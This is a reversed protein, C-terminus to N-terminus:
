EEEKNEEEYFEPEQELEQEQNEEAEKEAILEDLIELYADIRTLKKARDEEAEAVLTKKYMEVREDINYDDAKVQLKMEIYKRKKELLNEM